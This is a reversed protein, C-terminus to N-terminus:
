TYTLMNSFCYLCKCSKQNTNLSCARFSSIFFCLFIQFFFTTAFTLGATIILYIVTNTFIAGFTCVLIWGFGCIVFCIIFYFTLRLRLANLGERYEQIGYKIELITNNLKILNKLLICIVFCAAFTFLMPKLMFKIDFKNHQEFFHDIVSDM